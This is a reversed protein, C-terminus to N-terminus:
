IYCGILLVYRSSAAKFIFQIDVCIQNNNDRSRYHLRLCRVTSSGSTERIRRTIILLVYHRYLMLFMSLGHSIINELEIYRGVPSPLPNHSMRSNVSAMLAASVRYLSVNQFPLRRAHLLHIMKKRKKLFNNLTNSYTLLLCSPIHSDTLSINVSFAAFMTCTNPSIIFFLSSDPGKNVFSELILIM